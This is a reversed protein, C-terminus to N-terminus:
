KYTKTIEGLVGLIEAQLEAVQKKLSTPVIKLDNHWSSIDVLIGRTKDLIIYGDFYRSYDACGDNDSEVHHYPYAILGGVTTIVPLEPTSSGSLATTIEQWSVSSLSRTDRWTDTAGDYDYDLNQSINHPGLKLSKLEKLDLDINVVPVSQWGTHVYGNGNPCVTGGPPDDYRFGFNFITMGLTGPVPNYKKDMLPRATEYPGETSKRSLISQPYKIEFGYQDNKYTQWGDMVVSIDAVEPTQIEKQWLYVGGFIIVLAIVLYIIKKM